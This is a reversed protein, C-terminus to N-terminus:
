VDQAHCYHLFLHSAVLHCCSISRVPMPFYVFFPVSFDIITYELEVSVTILYALTALKGNYSDITTPVDIVFPIEQYHLIFSSSVTYGFVSSDHDLSCSVSHIISETANDEYTMKCTANLTVDKLECGSKSKYRLTITGDFPYTRGGQHDGHLGDSVLLIPFMSDGVLKYGIPHLCEKNLEMSLTYEGFQETWQLTEM